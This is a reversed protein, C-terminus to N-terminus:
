VSIPLDQPAEYLLHDIEFIHMATCRLFLIVIVPSNNKYVLQVSGYVERIYTDYPQWLGHACVPRHRLVKCLVHVIGLIRM